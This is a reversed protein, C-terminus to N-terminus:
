SCNNVVSRLDFHVAKSTAPVLVGAFPATLAQTVICSRGAYSMTAEVVRGGGDTDVVRDITVGYGGTGRGGMAVVIIMDKSFDVVPLPMAGGNKNIRTWLASWAAQDRILYTASDTLGSYYPSIGKFLSDGSVTRVDTGGSYHDVDVTSRCAAASAALAAVILTRLSLSLRTM